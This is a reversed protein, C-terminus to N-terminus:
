SADKFFSSSKIFNLSADKKHNTTIELLSLVQFLAPKISSKKSRYVGKLLYSKVGLEKTFCSVILSTDQYKIASFVIAKTTSLM